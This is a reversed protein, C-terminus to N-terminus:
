LRVLFRIRSCIDVITSILNTKYVLVAARSWMMEDVITSILNTKYVFPETVDDM